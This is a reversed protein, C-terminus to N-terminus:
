AAKRKSEYDSYAAMFQENTAAYDTNLEALQEAAIGLDTGLSREENVLQVSLESVRQARAPDDIASDIKEALDAHVQEITPPAKVCGTPALCVLAIILLSLRM